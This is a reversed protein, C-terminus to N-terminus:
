YQNLANHYPSCCYGLFVPTVLNLFFLEFSLITCFLEYNITLPEYIM